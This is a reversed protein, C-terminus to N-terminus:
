FGIIYFSYLAFEKTEKVYNWAHSFVTDRLSFHKTEKNNIWCIHEQIQTQCRNGLIRSFNSIESKKNPWLGPKTIDITSENNCYLCWLCFSLCFLIIQIFNRSLERYQLSAALSQPSRIPGQARECLVSCHMCCFIWVNEKTESAM